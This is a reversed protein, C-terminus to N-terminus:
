EWTGTQGAITVRTGKKLTGAVEAAIAEAESAFTPLNEAPAQAPAAAAPAAAAPAAAQPDPYTEAFADNIRQKAGNAYDILIQLQERFDEPAMNEDLAALADEM